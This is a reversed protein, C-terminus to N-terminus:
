VFTAAPVVHASPSRHLPASIHVACAAHTAPVGGATSSPFGHVVSLQWALRPTRWTASGLPEEQVSPLAQLPASAHVALPLQAAPVAGTKLSPLGQVVSEQLGEVPGTCVGSAAPVLQESPLAQLPESLQLAAPWHWVPAGGTTLSPLGHVRSLQSGVAPTKCVASTSPVEHVSASRHLPESVQWAPAQAPPTAGTM